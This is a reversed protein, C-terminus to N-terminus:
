AAVRAERAESALSRTYAAALQLLSSDWSRESAALRAQMSMSARLGPRTALEIVGEALAGADPTCLRGTVGNEVLELPGGAAAAVVPLGSAQAELLVQGFTDTTSAFLFIDASAYARAYEEGDIWGLFTAKEGLRERLAAEEPGGGALVLHLRRDREYAEVFTEALLEVGKEKTLRGSYMVNIEGKHLGRERKDPTFRSIDVGRGWRMIREGDVGVSRLSEESAGSPSLVVDCGGYFAGLAFKMGQELAPDGSRLGAYSALETHYSGV